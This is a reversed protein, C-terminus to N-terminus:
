KVTVWLSERGRQGAGKAGERRSEVRTLLLACIPFTNRLGADPCGSSLVSLIEWVEGVERGFYCPNVKEKKKKSRASIYFLVVRKKRCEHAASSWDVPASQLVGRTKAQMSLSYKIGNCGMPSVRPQLLSPPRLFEWRVSVGVAARRWHVGGGMGVELRWRWGAQSCGSFLSLPLHKGARAGRQSRNADKHTGNDRKKEGEVVHPQLPWPWFFCLAPLFFTLIFFLSHLIKTMPGAYNEETMPWHASYYSASKFCCTSDAWWARNDFKYNYERISRRQPSIILTNQVCKGKLTRFPSQQDSVTSTVDESSSNTQSLLDTNEDQNNRYKYATNAHFPAAHSWQKLNWLYIRLSHFFLCMTSGNKRKM